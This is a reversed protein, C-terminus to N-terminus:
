SAYGKTECDNNWAHVGEEEGEELVEKEELVYDSGRSANTAQGLTGMWGGLEKVTPCNLGLGAAAAAALTSSSTSSPLSSKLSRLSPSTSMMGQGTTPSLTFCHTIPTMPNRISSSVPVLTVSFLNSHGGWGSWDKVEAVKGIGGEVEALVKLGKEGKKRGGGVGFLGGAREQTVQGVVVLDNFVLMTLNEEKEKKRSKSSSSPTTPRSHSFSYSDASFSSASSPSRTVTSPRSPSPSAQYQNKNISNSRSPPGGYYSSSTSSVSFASTRSPTLSASFDWPSVSSAATSPASSSVTSSISGRSSHFSGARGRGQIGSGSVVSASFVPALDKGPVIRVVQGQGILKRGRQALVFGEPLGQLRSELAQLQEFDEERAKTAQLTLIISETTSLLSLIEAHAPHPYPTVDLLRKLFLPYKTLRQVPKLLMSGLSMSGLVEEKMQMRVFEGFVSEPDRVNEEVLQVVAEFRLLYWEHVHLKGVWGKFMGVFAGVDLAESQRRMDREAASIVGHAHSISELSDFLDTIKAPIGSIWEGQPTKLPIAFLRLVTRMSKIFAHETECMEWIIEQRKVELPGHNQMLRHYTEDSSLSSRWTSTPTAPLVPSGPELCKSYGSSAVDFVEKRARSAPRPPEPTRSLLESSSRFQRPRRPPTSSAQKNRSMSTTRRLPTVNVTTRPFPYETSTPKTNSLDPSAFNAKTEPWGHTEAIESEIIGRPRDARIYPLPLSIPQVPSALSGEESSSSMIFSETISEDSGRREDETGGCAWFYGGQDAELYRDHEQVPDQRLDFSAGPSFLNNEELTKESLSWPQNFDLHAVLGRLASLRRQASDRKRGGMPTSESVTADASEVTTALLQSSVPAPAPASAPLESSTPLDLVTPRPTSAPSVTITSISDGSPSISRTYTPQPPLLDNSVLSHPLPKPSLISPGRRARAAPSPSPLASSSRRAPRPPTSGGSETALNISPSRSPSRRRRNANTNITRSPSRDRTMVFGNAPPTPLCDLDDVGGTVNLGLGIASRSNPVSVSVARSRRGERSIVIQVEEGAAGDLPPSVIPESGFSPGLSPSTSYDVAIRKSRSSQPSPMTQEDLMTPTLALAPLLKSSSRSNRRSRNSTNNIPPPPTSVRQSTSSSSSATSSTSISRSIPSSTVGGRERRLTVPSANTISFMSPYPSPSSTTAPLPPVPPPAPAARHPSLVHRNSRTMTATTAITTRYPSTPTDWQPMPPTEVQHSIGSYAHAGHASRMPMSPSRPHRPPPSPLQSPM